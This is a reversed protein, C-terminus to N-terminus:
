KNEVIKGGVYKYNYTGDENMLPKDFYYNQAHGYKEGIGSDINIWGNKDELFLSSNVSTVNFDSNIKIYVEIPIVYPDDPLKLYNDEYLYEEM